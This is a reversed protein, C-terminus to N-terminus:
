LLKKLSYFHDMRYTSLDRPSQCKNVLIIRHSTESSHSRLDIGYKIYVYFEVFKVFALDDIRKMLDSFFKLRIKEIILNVLLVSFLEFSIGKLYLKCLYCVKCLKYLAKIMLVMIIFLLM